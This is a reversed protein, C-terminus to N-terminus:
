ICLIVFVICYFLFKRICPLCYSKEADQQYWGKPCTQCTLDINRTSTFYVPNCAHCFIYPFDKEYDVTGANALKPINYTGSPCCKMIGLGKDNIWPKTSDPTLIFDSSGIVGDWTPNCWKQDFNKADVVVDADNDYM